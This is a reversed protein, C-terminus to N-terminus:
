IRSYLRRQKPLLGRRIDKIAQDSKVQGWFRFERAREAIALYHNAISGYSAGVAAQRASQQAFQGPTNPGAKNVRNLTSQAADLTAQSVDVRPNMLDAQSIADNAQQLLRAGMNMAARGATLEIVLREEGRSLTSQVFTVTDNDALDNELPPYFTIDGESSALVTDETLRYRGRLGAVTFEQDEVITEASAMLDVHILTDGRSYGAVLDVQGSLDTLRSVWHQRKIWMDVDVIRSKLVGGTDSDPITRDYLLTLINNDVTFNRKNPPWGRTPYEVRDVGWHPGVYDEIDGLYIQRPDWCDQNFIRYEDNTNMIDRSLILVSTSSFSTVTTWTNETVNFVVKDVDTAVFQSETTDTLRGSTGATEFGTRSELERTLISVHPSYSSLERIARDLDDAVATAVWLENASDQLLAEVDNVLAAHTKPV